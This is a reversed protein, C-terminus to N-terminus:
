WFCENWRRHMVTAEDAFHAVGGCWWLDVWDISCTVPANTLPKAAHTSGGSGGFIFKGHRSHCCCVRVYRASDVGPGGQSMIQSNAIGVVNWGDDELAVIMVVVGWRM